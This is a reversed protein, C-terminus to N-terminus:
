LEIKEKLQFYYNKYLEKIKLNMSSHNLVGTKPNYVGVYKEDGVTEKGNNIVVIRCVYGNSVLPMSYIYIGRKNCFSAYIGYNSLM